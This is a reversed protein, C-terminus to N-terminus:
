KFYIKALLMYIIESYLSVLMDPCLMGHCLYEEYVYPYHYPIADCACAATPKMSHSFQSGPHFLSYYLIQMPILKGRPFIFRIKVNCNGKLNHDIQNLCTLGLDILKLELFSLLECNFHRLIINTDMISSSIDNILQQQKTECECQTM